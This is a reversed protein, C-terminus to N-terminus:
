AARPPKAKIPLPVPFTAAAPRNPEPARVPPEYRGHRVVWPIESRSLGIDKLEFDDLGQLQAMASLRQRREVHARWRVVIDTAFRIAARRLSRALRNVMARSLMTKAAHTQRIMLRERGHQREAPLVQCDIRQLNVQNLRSM